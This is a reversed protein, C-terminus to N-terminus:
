PIIVRKDAEGKAARLLLDVAEQIGLTM